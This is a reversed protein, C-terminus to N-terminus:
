QLTLPTLKPDKDYTIQYKRIINVLGKIRQLEALTEAAQLSCPAVGSSIVSRKVQDRRPAIGAWQHHNSETEAIPSDDPCSIQLVTQVSGKNDASQTANFFPAHLM